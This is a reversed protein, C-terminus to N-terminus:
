GHRRQQMAHMDHAAARAPRSLNDTDAGTVSDSRTAAWALIGHACGGRGLEGAKRGGGGSGDAWEWAAALAARAPPGCSPHKGARGTRISTSPHSFPPPLLLLSPSQYPDSISFFCPASFSCSRLCLSSRPLLLDTLLFHYHLFDIHVPLLPCIVSNHAGCRMTSCNHRRSPRPHAAAAAVAAATLRFSSQLVVALGPSTTM